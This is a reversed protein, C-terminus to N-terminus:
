FNRWYFVEHQFKEPKNKFAVVPYCCWEIKVDIAESVDMEREIADIKRKKGAM